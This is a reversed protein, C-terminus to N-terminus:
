RRNRKNREHKRREYEMGLFFCEVAVFVVIVILDKLQEM